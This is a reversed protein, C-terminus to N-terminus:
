RIKSQYRYEIGMSLLSLSEDLKNNQIMLQFHTVQKAKVKSKVEKPFTSSYFTFNNFDLNNFDFLNFQIKKTNILVNEKKDSSYYIDISTRSAPKMAFYLAEIYKKLEEAKFTLQKSKWYANIAMGDDNYAAGEYEKKFRYVLGDTLSGFYLFGDKVLFCSANINNYVYWEGYRNETSKQTYDLVYVNGNLALWYKKDFDVSVANNLGSELLLKRDINSSVHVVNREDRVNSAVLMYVGDKSLSVPNNEIIQISGSAIAGVQNNIPKSPFSVDGAETIQFNIMHKGNPREVILYDYQKSFGMVKESLRYYGNELWYTPDYLGSRFMYEPMDPNGSIFTRTDNSGGFGVAMTCKKIREPYGSVTKGATIIVNNTGKEPATTFTVKGNVRDVTLGTGENITATGVVASVTTADLGTLSMQYVTAEGDGSFSDKFKNGILNFDENASGGGSPNKSIQLVPVYPEVQKITAGDYVLFNVGDMIYCKGEVTFLNVKGNQLTNFISIPQANGSQTYLNTGHAILFITSGDTRTFLYMGNIKGTGLSTPFVRTYGTRKELAGRENSIMNLTDPSHHDSIQTAAGSVDMGRFPELRFPPLSKTTIAPMQAM